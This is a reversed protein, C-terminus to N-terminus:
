LLALSAMRALDANLNEPFHKQDFALLAYGTQLSPSQQFCRQYHTQAENLQDLAEYLQATAMLLLPENPQHTLWQKMKTLKHEVGIQPLALYMTLADTSPRVALMQELWGKLKRYAQTRHLHQLYLMEIGPAQKVRLSLRSWTQEFATPHDLTAKLQAYCAKIEYASLVNSKLRSRETQILTYMAAWDEAAAYAHALTNIIGQHRPALHLAENLLIVAADFRHDLMQGLGELWYVLAQHDGKDVGNLAALSVPDTACIEGVMGVLATPWTKRAHKHLWKFQGQSLMNLAKVLQHLQKKDHNKERRHRLWAPICLLRWVLSLIVWFVLMAVMFVPLSIIIHLGAIQLTVVGPNLWLFVAVAAIVLLLLLYKIM